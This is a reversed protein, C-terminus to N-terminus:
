FFDLTQRCETLFVINKYNKKLEDDLEKLSPYNSELNYYKLLSSSISLISRDYNPYLINKM